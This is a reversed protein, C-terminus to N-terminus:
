RREHGQDGGMVHDFTRKEGVVAAQSLSSECTPEAHSEASPPLAEADCIRAHKSRSHGQPENQAACPTSSEDSPERNAFALPGGVRACDSRLAGASAVAAASSSPPPVAPVSADLSPNLAKAKSAKYRQGNPVGNASPKWWTPVPRWANIPLHVSDPLDPPPELVGSVFAGGPQTFHPHSACARAAAHLEAITKARQICKFPETKGSGELMLM